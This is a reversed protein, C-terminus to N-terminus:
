KDKVKYNCEGGKRRVYKALQERDGPKVWVTVSVLGMDRMRQRKKAMLDKKSEPIKAPM